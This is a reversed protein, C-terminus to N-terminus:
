NTILFFLFFILFLLVSVFVSASSINKIKKIEHNREPFILDVTKEISTNLLETIIVFKFAIKMGNLSNLFSKFIKVFM